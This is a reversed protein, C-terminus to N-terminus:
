KLINVINQAVLDPSIDVMCKQYVEQSCYGRGDKSCPRCTLETELVKIHKGTPFGFATPGILSIGQVELIDAVHIIGTDASIVLQSEKVIAMSEVLSLEGALNKVRRPALEELEKCFIDEPGGLVLFNFQPLLMILNKFNLLPWRKM